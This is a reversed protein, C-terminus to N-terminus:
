CSTRYRLDNALIWHEHKLFGVQVMKMNDVRKFITYLLSIQEVVMETCSGGAIDVRDGVDYPHKIFLFICSGLFEQATVAFVFSLSLLTTGATALTTVFNTNQFAIIVFVVLVFVFAVLIQDLVSIAQGVDRMSNAIAKRDRGLEVVKMIMEDLSIDGNGDSDLAEFAEDAEDCRAPGLVEQVDELFLAEKGEVVFSMWLRKALAESSRKKELAEVVISHASNPNFVQKGSIESAINGFAHTVKDGIRGIGAILAMPTNSGSRRHGKKGRAFLLAEISDNIIIDEDEFEHCYMPFLTRSADYLLGLLHISRKSEQIRGAFSRSHYSISILQIVLKEALYAGAAILLPALINKVVGVWHEEARNGSATVMLVQFTALATAAWLILSIPVELAKIVLAYKRTGSSVVGCLFMFVAPLLQAVLKAVWISLWVVEIWTFFWVLRVNGIYADRAVTAGVVIPIAILAGIPLIYVIHRIVPSFGIVKQYVKGLGTVTTSDTGTRSKSDLKKLKRRGGHKGFLGKKEEDKTSVPELNVYHETSSGEKRAGTSSNSKVQELPINDHPQMEGFSNENRLPKFGRLSM